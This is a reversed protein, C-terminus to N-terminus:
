GTMAAPHALLWDSLRLFPLRGRIQRAPDNTFGDLAAAYLPMAATYPLLAKREEATLRFNAHAEYEEVLRPVHQWAFSEPVQHGQLALVMFALSYALDHVRPRYALFGFDLYVTKGTSTQGVNSLHVDGHILQQPLHSAPLWQRRLRSVLNRLFRVIDVAERDGQVAAETIPLWRSLSSPPAYTAVLPRPVTIDLTALERHLTG